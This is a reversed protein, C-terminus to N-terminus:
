RIHIIKGVGTHNVFLSPSGMYRIDGVGSLDIMLNESVNIDIDGTGSLKIDGNKGMLDFLRLNGVGSHHAFIDVATGHIEVDGVEHLKFNINQVDIDSLYINGVGDQEISLTPTTIYDECRIDAVGDVRISTFEPAYVDFVLLDIKRHNGTLKIFLDNEYVSLTIDDLVNVNTRIMVKYEPAIHLNVKGIAEVRLGNFESLVREETALPGPEEGITCSTILIMALLAYLTTTKLILNM